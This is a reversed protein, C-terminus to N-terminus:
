RGGRPDLLTRLADDSLTAFQREIQQTEGTAIGALDRKGAHMEAITEELTRETILTHITVTRTQGIRHARDSAQDEVAPNWWRDYHVVHTARTLNLGFGAARLSLLLVPPGAQDEQFRSIMKERAQLPLAGHLFPVREEGLHDALHRALLEGTTRYQTFVLAAEGSDVIEALTETLRDLKGSRGALPAGTAEVHEPHNCIQKLRTLLALVRGRREIGTGLGARFAADLGARYLREQEETLECVVTAVIKDPLEPAVESKRRRLIHPGVVAHLRASAAASRRQEIAVAYRSRFRSRPGLLGPNSFAMLSWLEDLRNEVPTGTMAIRLGAHLARATRATHTDPNKIQQAEDLVVVDWEPATLERADGRLIPYTTLVVAGATAAALAATRDPGTYATVDIDPAFRALERTWNGVLSSPCVVLHRGAPRSALLAIAQLTKGLGMEDALIGGGHAAAATLWALGARQYPRLVARVIRSGEPQRDCGVARRAASVAADASWITAGDLGIAAHGATPLAEALADAADADDLAAAIRSWVRVSEGVAVSGPQWAALAAAGVDAPVLVAPLTSSM